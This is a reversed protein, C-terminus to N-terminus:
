EVTFGMLEVPVTIINGTPRMIVNAGPLAAYGTGTTTWWAMSYGHHGQGGLTATDMIAAVGNPTMPNNNYDLMGILFSSGTYNWGFLPANLLLPGTHPGGTLSYGNSSVVNATGAGTNLQDYLTIWMPGWTNAGIVSMVGWTVHTVSGSLQVPAVATGATNLAFDFRNGFSRGPVASFAVVMGTDYVISGTARPAKGELKVPQELKTFTGNGPTGQHAVKTARAAELDKGELRVLGATGDAAVAYMAWGAVLVIVGFTLIGKWNKM